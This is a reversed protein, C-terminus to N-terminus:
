SLREKVAIVVRDMRPYRGTRRHVEASCPPNGVVKPGGNIMRGCNDDPCVLVEKEWDDPLRKSM